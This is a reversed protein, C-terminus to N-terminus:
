NGSDPILVMEQRRKKIQFFRLCMIAQILLEASCKCIIECGFTKYHSTIFEPSTPIKLKLYIVIVTTTIFIRLFFFILFETSYIALYNKFIDVLQTGDSAKIIILCSSIFIICQLIITIFSVEKVEAKSVNLIYEPNFYALVLLFLYVCYFIFEFNSLSRKALLAVLKRTRIFYIEKMKFGWEWEQLELLYVEM